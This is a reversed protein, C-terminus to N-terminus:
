KGGEIEVYIYSFIYNSGDWAAFKIINEHKPNELDVTITENEGGSFILEENLFIDIGGRYEDVEAVLRYDKSSEAVFPYYGELRTQGTIKATFNYYTEKWFFLAPPAAEVKLSDGLKASDFSFYHKGHGPVRRYFEEDSSFVLSGLPEASHIEVELGGHTYDGEKLDEELGVTNFLSRSVVGSIEGLEESNTYFRIDDDLFDRSRTRGKTDRYDPTPDFDSTGGSDAMSTIIGAGIIVIIIVGIMVVVLAESM